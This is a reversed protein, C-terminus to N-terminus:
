RDAANIEEVLSSLGLVDPPLIIEQRGADGKQGTATLFEIGAMWEQRTLRTQSAFAHLHGILATLLEGLRAEPVSDHAAIAQRTIEDESAASMASIIWRIRVSGRILGAESTVRGFYSRTPFRRAGAVGLRYGGCEPVLVNGSPPRDHGNYHLRGRQGAPQRMIGWDSVESILIACSVIALCTSLM